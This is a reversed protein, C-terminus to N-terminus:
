LGLWGRLWDIPVAELLQDVTQVGTEVDLLALFVVAGVGLLLVRKMSKLVTKHQTKHPNALCCAALLAAM